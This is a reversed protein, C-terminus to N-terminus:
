DQSKFGLSKPTSGSWREEQCLGIITDLLASGNGLLMRLKVKRAVNRMEGPAFPFRVALMKADAEKLRPISLKWLKVLLEQSPKRFMVKYLFRREFAADLNKTMNTTALLIGRFRELEDLVINQMSNNMKDVSHGVDMRRSLLADCENLFLIPQHQGQEMLEDYDRFLKRTNQESEGVWKSLINAVNVEILPRKSERALQLALETKGTGPHGHLLVTIGRMRDGADLTKQYNKFFSPKVLARLDNIVPMMEEDFLLKVKKIQDPMLAGKPLKVAKRLTQKRGPLHDPLESLFADVGKATLELSYTEGMFHEGKISVLGQKIPWWTGLHIYEALLTQEARCYQLYNAVYHASFSSQETYHSTCIGLLAFQEVTNSINGLYETLSLEPNLKILFKLEDKVDQINHTDYDYLKQRAYELMGALGIPKLSALIKSDDERIAQMVRRRIMPGFEWENSVRNGAKNQELINFRILEDVMTDVQDYDLNRQLLESLSQVTICRGERTFHYAIALIMLEIQNFKLVARVEDAMPHPVVPSQDYAAAIIRQYYEKLFSVLPLQLKTSESMLVCFQCCYICGIQM